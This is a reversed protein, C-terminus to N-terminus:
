ENGQAPWLRTLSVATRLEWMRGQQRRAIMLAHAFENEAEEVRGSQLLLGGRLRHLKVESVHEETEEAASIAKAGGHGGV